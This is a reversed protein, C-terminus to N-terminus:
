AAARSLRRLCLLDKVALVDRWTAKFADTYWPDAVDGPRDTHDMLLSKKWKYLRAQRLYWSREEATGCNELIILSLTWKIQLALKALLPENEYARYFDRMRRVNRPSFGTMEPHRERLYESAM